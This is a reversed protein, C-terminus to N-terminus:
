RPSRRNSESQIEEVSILLRKGNWDRPGHDAMLLGGGKAFVGIAIAYARELESESIAIEDAWIDGEKPLYGEKPMPRAQKFLINGSEDVGHVANYYPHKQGTTSKWAVTLKSGDQGKEPVVGVLVFNGGFKVNRFEELSNEAIALAREEGIMQIENKKAVLVSDYFIPAALVIIAVCAAVNWFPFLKKPGMSLTTANSALMANRVDAAKEARGTKEGSFMKRGAEVIFKRSPKEVFTWLFYSGALLLIWFYLYAVPNSLSLDPEINKRFYRLLIQHLLYISFSIEGLVRM